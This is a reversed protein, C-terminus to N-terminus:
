RLPRARLRRAGRRHRPRRDRPHRGALRCRHAAIIRAQLEAADPKPLRPKAPDDEFGPRDPRRHARGAVRRRLDEGRRAPALRRRLRDQHGPGAGAVLGDGAHAGLDHLVERGGDARGPRRPPRHGPRGPVRRARGPQARGLRRRHRGRHVSTVGEKLYQEAARAIAQTLEALPYPYVLSGCWSSPGSRSCAPPRGDDDAAVRGGPFRYRGRRHGPRGPGRQEGRVHARLHAAALGASGPAVRDLADRDPHAGLKNQDYGTGIVWDGPATTEARRGVAAYLEDLSGVASSRLDVEALSMGFGIMHNHADHFGPLVTAGRLDVVRDAENLRDPSEDLAEIRGGAIAVASARPRAPDM